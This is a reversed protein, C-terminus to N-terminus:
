WCSRFNFRRGKRGYYLHVPYKDAFLGLVYVTNKTKLFFQKNKRDIRIAPM